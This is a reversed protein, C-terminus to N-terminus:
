QMYWTVSARKRWSFGSGGVTVMTCMAAWNPSHASVCSSVPENMSTPVLATMSEIYLMKAALPSTAGM